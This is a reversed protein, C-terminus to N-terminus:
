LCRVRKGWKPTVVPELVGQPIPRPEQQTQLAAWSTETGLVHERRERASTSVLLMKWYVKWLCTDTESDPEWPVPGTINPAVLSGLLCVEFHLKPAPNGAALSVSLAMVTPIHLVSWRSLVTATFNSTQSTTFQPPKHTSSFLHNSGPLLLQILIPFATM